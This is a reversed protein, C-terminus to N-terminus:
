KMVKEENEFHSKMMRMLRIILFRPNEDHHNSLVDELKKIQACLEDHDKDLFAFEEPFGVQLTM